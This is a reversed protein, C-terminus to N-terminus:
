PKLSSAGVTEVPRVLLGLTHLVTTSDADFRNTLYAADFIRALALMQDLDRAVDERSRHENSAIM